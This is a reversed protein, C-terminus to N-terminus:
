PKWNRHVKYAPLARAGSQREAIREALWQFWEMAMDRGISERWEMLYRETKNWSQLIAGSFSDEVLALDIERHYVLIGLREWTGLVVYLAVYKDEPLANITTMGANDPLDFIILLGRVFDTTQLSSLLLIAAERKRMAYFNRLNWLSFAVGLIM